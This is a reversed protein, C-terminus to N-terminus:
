LTGVAEANRENGDGLPQSDAAPQGNRFRIVHAPSGAVIAYAPVDKTVVAGAGVIAHDLICVGPLIIARIGIWVDNGIRVPESPRQGQQVVPIRIDKFEHGSLLHKQKSVVIDTFRNKRVRFEEENQFQDIPINNFSLM